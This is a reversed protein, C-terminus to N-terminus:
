RVLEALRAAEDRAHAEEAAARKRGEDYGAKEGDSRAQEFMGEIEDATPLHVQPETAEPEPPAPQDASAANSEDATEDPTEPEEADFAPPQWRQYAGTAQHRTISM